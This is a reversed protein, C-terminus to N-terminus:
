QGQSRAIKKALGIAAHIGKSSRLAKVRARDGKKLNRIRGIYEGQLRLAARRAPTLKPKRRSTALGAPARVAAELAPRLRALANVISSLSKRIQQIDRGVAPPRPSAM